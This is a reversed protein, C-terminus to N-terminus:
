SCCTKVRPVNPDEPLWEAFFLFGAGHGAVVATMLTGNWTMFIMMLNLGYGIVLSHMLSRVVKDSLKLRFILLQLM